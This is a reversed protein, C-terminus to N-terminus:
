LNEEAKKVSDHCPACLAQWNSQDWFLVQDGRHPIIHDVVTAATVRGDRECYCCMPHKFLFRKRERQWRGGYGREATSKGSRWSDPTVQQIKRGPTIAVRPKLTKLGM